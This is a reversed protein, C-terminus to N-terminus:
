VCFIRFKYPPDLSIWSEGLHLRVEYKAGISDLAKKAKVCYPCYSKSYMVVGHKGVM